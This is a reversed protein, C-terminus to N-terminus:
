RNFLFAPSNILAWALDQVGILRANKTSAEAQAVANKLRALEGDQGLVHTTLATNQEPSRKDKPTAVIAALQLREGRHDIGFALWEARDM